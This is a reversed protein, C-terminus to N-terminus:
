NTASPKGSSPGVGPDPKLRPAWDRSAARKRANRGLENWVDAAADWDSKYNSNSPDSGTGINEMGLTQAIDMQAEFTAPNIQTHTGNAKLGNDDLIKRAVEPEIEAEAQLRHLAELETSTDAHGYDTGMIINDEGSYRLVYPLDDDTQCAEQRM